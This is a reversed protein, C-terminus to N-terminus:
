EDGSFYRVVEEAGLFCEEVSVDGTRLDNRGTEKKETEREKLLKKKFVM